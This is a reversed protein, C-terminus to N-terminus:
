DYELLKLTASVNQISFEEEDGEGGLQMKVSAIDHGPLPGRGPGDLFPWTPLYFIEEYGCEPRCRVWM